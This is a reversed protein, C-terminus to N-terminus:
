FSQFTEFSIFTGVLVPAKVSARTQADLLYVATILPGGHVHAVNHLSVLFPREKRRYEYM